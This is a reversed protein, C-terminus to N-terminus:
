GEFRIAALKWFLLSHRRLVLALPKSPTGRRHLKLAVQDFNEYDVTSEITKQEAGTTDPSDGVALHKKGSMYAALNQPTVMQDVVPDLLSSALAGAAFTTAESGGSERAGEYMKKLLSEKLSDKLSSFDVYAALRDGDADRFASTM